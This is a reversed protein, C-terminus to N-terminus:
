PILQPVVAPFGVGTCSTLGLNCDAALCQSCALTDSGRENCSDGCSTDVCGAYDGYCDSCDQTLGPTEQLCSDVSLVIDMDATDYCGWFQGSFEPNTTLSLDPEENCTTTLGGGGTGATGGTGAIGGTGATGGTGDSDGGCGWAGIAVALIVLLTKKRAM